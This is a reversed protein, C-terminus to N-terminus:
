SGGGKGDQVVGQNYLRVGVLLGLADTEAVTRMASAILVPLHEDRGVFGSSAVVGAVGSGVEEEKAVVVVLCTRGELITVYDEADGPRKARITVRVEDVGGDIEEQHLVKHGRM